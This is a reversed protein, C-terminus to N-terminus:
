GHNHLSEISMGNERFFDRLTKEGDHEWRFGYNPFKEREEAPRTGGYTAERADMLQFDTMGPYATRLLNWGDMNEIFDFFMNGEFFFRRWNNVTDSSSEPMRETGM